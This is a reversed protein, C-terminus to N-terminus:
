ADFDKDTEPLAPVKIFEVGEDKLIKEEESTSVGRINRPESVGCHIKLAEKAFDSGVDDFNKEVFDAIQRNLAMLAKQPSNNLTMARSHGSRNGKAIAFTSLAKTIDRSDCVPCSIMGTKLQNQFADNDKFWGEFTHGNGCNLDFAIM